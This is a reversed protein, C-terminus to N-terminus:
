SSRATRVAPTTRESVVFAGNPCAAAARRVKRLLRGSDVRDDVVRGFGWQDLEVGEAIAEAREPSVTVVATCGAM